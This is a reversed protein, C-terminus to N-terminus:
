RMGLLANRNREMNEILGKIHNVGDNFEQLLKRAMIEDAEIISLAWMNNLRAIIDKRFLTCSDSDANYHCLCAKGGLYPNNLPIIPFIIDNGCRQRIEDILVMLPVAEKFHNPVTYEKISRLVRKMSPFTDLEKKRNSLTKGFVDSMAYEVSLLVTPWIDIFRRNAGIDVSNTEMISTMGGFQWGIITSKGFKIISSDVTDQRLVTSVAFNANVISPSAPIILCEVNDNIWEAARQECGDNDEALMMRMAAYDLIPFFKSEERGTSDYLDIVDHRIPAYILKRLHEVNNAMTQNM